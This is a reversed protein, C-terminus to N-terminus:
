LYSTIIDQPDRSVDVNQFGESFKRLIEDEQKWSDPYILIHILKGLYGFIVRGYLFDISTTGSNYELIGDDDRYEEYSVFKLNSKSDIVGQIRRYPLIFKNDGEYRIVENRRIRLRIIENLIKSVIFDQRDFGEKYFSEKQVSTISPWEDFTKEEESSYFYYIITQIDDFVGHVNETSPNYYWKPFLKTIRLGWEPDTYSVEIDTDLNRVKIRSKEMHKYERTVGTETLTERIIPDLVDLVSTKGELIYRKAHRLREGNVIFTNSM